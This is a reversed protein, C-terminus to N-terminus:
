PPAPKQLPLDAYDFGATLADVPLPRLPPRVTQLGVEVRSRATMACEIMAATEMCFRGGCPGMGCRTGAKVANPGRAGADIEAEIDRRNLGECRCVLTEPTVQRLLGARPVTLATMARGFRTAAGSRPPTGVRKGLDSAVALATRRGLIPAAEAGRIGAGDGCAYIGEVSTRGSADTAVHWGGLSPSFAHECGLLRSPETAPLLGHGICVADAEIDLEPGTTPGWEADVPGVSARLGRETQEIMRVGHRRLVPVRAARLRALWRLGRLALTPRSALAPAHKLWEAFGNFDVIAAVKGGGAIIEHAVFFLLPGCGSVLVERGPLRAQEKMLVTAGALGTVGPLTWGPLAIVREQAGTALIVSRTTVSRVGEATIMHVSWNDGEPQMQWVRSSFSCIVDSADLRRRLADGRRSEPSAPASVIAASKARWAQGGARPNEDVLLTSLGAGAATIAANAGAPGAGIVIVDSMAM